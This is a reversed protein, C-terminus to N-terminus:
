PMDSSIPPGAVRKALAGGDHADARLIKRLMAIGVKKGPFRREFFRTVRRGMAARSLPGGRASTFLHDGPGKPCVDLLRHLLRQMAAHPVFIREGTEGPPQKTRWQHVVVRLPSALELYNVGPDTAQGATAVRVTAPDLGLCKEALAIAVFTELSSRGECPATPVGGPAGGPLVAGLQQERERVAARLEGASVWNAEERETKVRSARRKARAVEIADRESEFRKYGLRRRTADGELAQLGILVTSLYRSRTSESLQRADLARRVAGADKLWGLSRMPRAGGHVDRYLLELTSQYGVLTSPRAGPKLTALAAALDM